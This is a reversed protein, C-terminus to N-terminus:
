FHDTGLRKEYNDAVQAVEAFQHEFEEKDLTKELQDSIVVLQKKDSDIAFRCHMGPSANMELLLRMDKASLKGPSKGGLDMCPSSFRIMPAKDTDNTETSYVHVLQSRGDKYEHTYKFRNAEFEYQM